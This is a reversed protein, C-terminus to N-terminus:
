KGCDCKYSSANEPSVWMASRTGELTHIWNDPTGKKKQNLEGYYSGKELEASTIQPATESAPIKACDVACNDTETIVTSETKTIKHSCSCFLILAATVILWYNKFIM